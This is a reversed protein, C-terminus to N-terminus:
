KKDTHIGYPSQVGAYKLFDRDTQSPQPVFVTPLVAYEEKKDFEAHPFTAQSMMDSPKKVLLFDGSYKWDYNCSIHASFTHNVAM